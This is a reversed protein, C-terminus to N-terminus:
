YRSLESLANVTIRELLLVDTENLPVLALTEGDQNCFEVLYHNNSLEEVVTGVMGRRVQQQPIDTLIAVVDFLKPISNM